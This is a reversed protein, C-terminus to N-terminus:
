KKVETGCSTCRYGTIRHGSCTPCLKEIMGSGCKPCYRAGVKAPNPQASICFHPNNGLRNCTFADLEDAVDKVSLAKVDTAPYVNPNAQRHKIIKAVQEDYLIANGDFRMGTKPDIFFWGSPPNPGNRRILM